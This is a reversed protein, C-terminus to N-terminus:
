TVNTRGLSPSDGKKNKSAILGFGKPMPVTEVRGGDRAHKDFGVAAKNESCRGGAGTDRGETAMNRRDADM